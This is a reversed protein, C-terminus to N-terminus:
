FKAVIKISGYHNIYEDDNANAEYNINLSTVDNGFSYGLGLTASLEEVETTTKFKTGGGQYTNESSIQSDGFENNVALSIMPTGNDTVMHAKVGLSGVLSNIDDQEVKLRLADSATASTETYADTNITTATASMFPTVFTGDRVEQPVGGGVKLSIQNSDYDASYTRNLGATNVLRSTSNENIGYTLSGEIYGNETAKDAYVSVTYSDISNKSKGTGKGDVDTSSYSASLGITSGDDTMGDFGIAVGSTETDFGYVTAGSSSTNKQEGESGFAQIFGSNASMGNGASMGTVFADGSRLSAMRNSVIGQVTGTMARTAISSGSSADTQPAAQIALNDVDASTRGNESNLLETIYDLDSASSAIFSDKIQMLAKAQNTTIGLETATAATTKNTATVTIDDTDTVTAIFDTLATDVLAANVDTAVAAQASATITVFLKVSEGNDLNAPAKILATAHVSDGDVDTTTTFVTNGDVITDDLVLIAGAALGVEEVTNAANTITLRGAAAVELDLTADTMIAGSGFVVGGTSTNTVKVLGAGDLLEGAAGTTVTQTSTGAFLSTGTSTLDAAGVTVDGLFTGIKGSAVTIANANVSSQFDADTTLTIAALETSGVAGTFNVAHDQDVSNNIVLTGQGAADGAITGTYVLDEVAGAITMTQSNAITTADAFVNNEIDAAADIDVLGVKVTTSTGVVGVLDAAGTVEIEGFGDTAVTLTGAIDDAGDLIIKQGTANMTVVSTSGSAKTLKDGMTLTTTDSGTGTLDITNAFVDLTFDANATVNIDKAHVIATTGFTTAANVNVTGIDLNSSGVTANQTLAASVTFTGDGDADATAAAVSTSAATVEMTAADVLDIVITKGSGIVANGGLKFTNGDNVTMAISHTATLLDALLGGTGTLVIVSDGTGSEIEAVDVLTSATAITAGDAIVLQDTVALADNATGDGNKDAATVTAGDAVAVDAAYAANMTGFTSGFVMAFIALYYAFKNKFKTLSDVTALVLTNIAKNMM